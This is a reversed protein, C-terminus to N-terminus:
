DGKPPEPLPMWHTVIECVGRYLGTTWKKAFPDYNAYDTYLKSFDNNVAVIYAGFKEPLRETVPIWKPLQEPLLVADEYEGLRNIIKEQEPCGGCMEDDNACDGSCVMYYGKGDYHKETLREM